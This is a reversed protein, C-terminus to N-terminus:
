GVRRMTVPIGAVAANTFTGSLTQGDLTFEGFGTNGNYAQFEVYVYAGQVYGNGVATIGYPPAEEHWVLDRGYQQFVYTFGNEGQWVGAISVDTPGAPTNETQEELEGMREELEAQAGEVADGDGEGAAGHEFEVRFTDLGIEFAGFRGGMLFTVGVIVVVLGGVVLVFRRGRKPKAPEPEPAAWPADVYFQWGEPAPGWAPDPSWGPPPQWGM